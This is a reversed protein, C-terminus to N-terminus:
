CTALKSICLVQKSMFKEKPRSIRKFCQNIAAKCKSRIIIENSVQM